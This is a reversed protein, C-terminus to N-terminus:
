AVTLRGVTATLEVNKAPRPRKGGIKGAASCAALQRRRRVLAEEIQDHVFLNGDERFFEELVPQVCDVDLKIKKAISEVPGLLPGEILFYLDMLRRYALDEADALHVTSVLYDRVNFKYWNM